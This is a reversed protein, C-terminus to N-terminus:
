GIIRRRVAASVFDLINVTAVIALIAVVAQGYEGARMTQNVLFGVGGAGVFGLVISVRFNIEFRYLTYSVFLPLVQPLVAWRVISTGPAGASELAEIPGKDANEIAESYLKGLDAMSHIAMALAGAFPGLGVAAVFILAIILTDIGRDINFFVRTVTYLARGVLSRETLNRAALLSTPLALAAALVTGVLATQLTITMAKLTDSLFGAFDPPWSRNLFDQIFPWGRALRALQFEVGNFSAALVVVVAALVLGGSLDSPEAADAGRALLGAGGMVLLTGFLLWGAFGYGPRGPIVRRLGAEASEIGVAYGRPLDDASDIPGLTGLEADPRTVGLAARQARLGAVTQEADRLELREASGSPAPGSAAAAVAARARDLRENAARWAADIREREANNLDLDAAWDSVVLELDASTPPLALKYYGRLADFYTPAAPGVLFVALLLAGVAGAAVTTAAQRRPLSRSLLIAAVLLGAPIVLELLFPVGVMRVVPQASASFALAIAVAAVGTALGALATPRLARGRALALAVIALLPPLALPLWVPVLAVATPVLAHRSFPGLAAAFPLTLFTALLGAAGAVVLRRASGRALLTTGGILLGLILYTLTM